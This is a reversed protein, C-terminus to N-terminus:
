KKGVAPANARRLADLAAGPKVILFPQDIPANSPLKDYSMPESGEVLAARVRASLEVPNPTMTRAAQSILATVGSLAPTAMSTGDMLAYASDEGEMVTSYVNTGPLMFVSKVVHTLKRADYNAGYSSFDAARGAGDLAGVTLANPAISPAEVGNKDHENGAAIVFIVGKNADSEIERAM